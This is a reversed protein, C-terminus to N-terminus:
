RVHEVDDGLLRRLLNLKDVTFDFFARLSCATM